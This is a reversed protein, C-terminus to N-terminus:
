VTSQFRQAVGGCLLALLWYIHMYISMVQYVIIIQVFYGIKFFRSAYCCLLVMWNGKAQSSRFTACRATLIEDFSEQKCVPVTMLKSISDTQSKTQIEEVCFIFDSVRM